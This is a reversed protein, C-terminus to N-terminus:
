AFFRGFRRGWGAKCITGGIMAQTLAANLSLEEALAPAVFIWSAIIIAADDMMINM